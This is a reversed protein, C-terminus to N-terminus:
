FNFLLGDLSTKIVLNSETDHIGFNEQGLYIFRYRNYNQRGCQNMSWIMGQNNGIAYLCGDRGVNILQGDSLVWKNYADDRCRKPRIVYNDPNSSLCRNSLTSILIFECGGYKVNWTETPCRHKDIM